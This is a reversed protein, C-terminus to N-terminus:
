FVASAVRAVRDSRSAHCLASLRNRRQLRRNSSNRRHVAKCQKPPSNPSTLSTATGSAPTPGSASAPSTSIPSSSSPPPPPRPARRTSFSAARAQWQLAVGAIGCVASIRLATSCSAAPSSRTRCRRALLQHRLRRDLSRASQRPANDVQSYGLQDWPVSTIRSAALELAVWFVPAAALACAAHQGYSKAGARPGPRLPRLLPRPGPQLWHAAVNAGTPAHRRVADHHRSDLLLQGHVLPRRLRYALLFARRLPRPQDITGRSFFLGSCRSWDSGRSSRVGRRCRVLSRFLCSSCAPPCAQQPGCSGSHLNRRRRHPQRYTRQM